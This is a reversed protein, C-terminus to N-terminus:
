ILFFDMPHLIPDSLVLIPYKRAPNVVAAGPCCTELKDWSSRQKIMAVEIVLTIRTSL